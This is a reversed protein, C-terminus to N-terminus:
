LVELGPNINQGSSHPAEPEVGTWRTWLWANQVKMFLRSNAIKLVATRQAPISYSLTVDRLRIYSADHLFRSTNRSGMRSGDLLPVNTPNEATWGNLL